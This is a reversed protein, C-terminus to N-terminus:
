LIFSVKAGACTREGRVVDREGGAMHEVAEVHYRM